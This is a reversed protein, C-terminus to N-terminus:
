KHQSLDPFSKDCFSPHQVAVVCPFGDNQLSSHQSNLERPLPSSLFNYNRDVNVAALSSPIAGTRRAMDAEGLQWQMAEATPRPVAMVEAVKARMESKSREYLRAPKNKLEEDGESRGELHAQYHQRCGTASRGPLHNSINNWTTKCRRLKIILANEERSWKGRKKVPPQDAAHPPMGRRGSM